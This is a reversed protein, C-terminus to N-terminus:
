EFLGALEKYNFQTIFRELGFRVLKEKLFVISDDVGIKDNEVLKRLHLIDSNDLSLLITEVSLTSSQL